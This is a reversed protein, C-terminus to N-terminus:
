RRVSGSSVVALLRSENGVQGQCPGLQLRLCGNRNQDCSCGKGGKGSLGGEGAIVVAGIKGGVALGLAEELMVVRARVGVAEVGVVVADGALAIWLLSGSGLKSWNSM